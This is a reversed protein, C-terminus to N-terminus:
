QQTSSSSGVSSDQAVRFKLETGATLQFDGKPSQLVSTSEASGTASSVSDLRVSRLPALGETPLGNLNGTASTAAGLTADTTTGLAGNNVAGLTGSTTSGVAATTSGLVSGGGLLGGGGSSRPSPSSMPEFMPESNMPALRPVAVMSTLVTNLETSTEGQVLTDFVVSVRTSAAGNATSEVSKVKGVLQDGKRVVKKGKSKVDKTVRAVVTDGPKATRSDLSSSLEAKLETGSTVDAAASSNREQGVANMGPMVLAASLAIMSLFQAGSTM